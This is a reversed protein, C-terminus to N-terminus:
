RSNGATKESETPFSLLDFIIMALFTLLHRYIKGFERVSCIKAAYFTIGRSNGGKKREERKKQKREEGIKGKKIDREEIPKIFIM